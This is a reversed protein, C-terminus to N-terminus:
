KSAGFVATKIMQAATFKLNKPFKSMKLHSIGMFEINLGELITLVDTKSRRFYAFISKVYFKLPLFLALNGYLPIDM